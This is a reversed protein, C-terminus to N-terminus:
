IKPGAGSNSIGAIVPPINIKPMEPMGPAGGKQEQSQAFKEEANQGVSEPKRGPTGELGPPLGPAGPMEPTGPPPPESKIPVNEFYKDADKFGSDELWSIFLEKFKPKVQEQQLLAAANPNTLLTTMAKDRAMKEEQGANLAMSQVDAVYDYLGNLDGPEVYLRGVNDEITLKPVVRSEEGTGSEVPYLPVKLENPDANENEAAYAAANEPLGYQDFGKERFYTVADKGAIRILFSKKDPDAFLMQQNMGYWLMMQRSIAESLFMQNFNDRSNRQALLHKVETATKTTQYQDINSVGLSTEGIANMMAAVLASYTNNFYSVANSSSEVLRFDTMPNNMQWKAGKGWELTNQRVGPGIAVPTYLKMNIEDVYQCLLANIAKQLSKVPEIESLGYIDDDIPYYRLMVVPIQHNRYPNEIKRLVLNHKPAFTIWEDKRYETVIEAYKYVPDNAYPTSSLRSITRNRSQWNTSRDDMGGKYSSLSAMLSDLNKYVPKGKSVDNIRLLDQGTVYERAQFWNCGEMTTAALESACDRNNLVKMEPGDFVVKRKGDEEYMWKCLAFAAGYKRTNIDMLAWKSLMSGNHSAQDWQLNLIANNIKAGVVDSGERPVLEGRLRSGLLRSTKEIIFTFIRPDFLLADYPWKSEDLWSRFLEDAEDFSISGIRGKGTRRNDTEQFGLQYHQNCDSFHQNLPDAM